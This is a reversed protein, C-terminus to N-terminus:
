NPHSMANLYNSIEQLSLVYQVAELAIAERPMGFILSSEQDQAITVAGKQKMLLLEKAGDRGMGTLIVGLAKSGYNVAMSKFLHGISPRLGGEPPANSLILMADPGAELHVDEPAVYIWGPKAIEQHEALKVTLASDKQLWDVLGKTYGAAIHQVLLIPAPFDSRLQSIIFQLAKPGGLSAGIAVAQTCTSPTIKEKQGIRKLLSAQPKLFLKPQFNIQAANKIAQLLADAMRQYDPDRPGVPKELIDLAGATIAKFSKDIDDKQYNASVIIIPIPFSKMILHTTEFGDMGPLVIDMTIVDPPTKKIFELADEGTKVTGIVQLQQDSQIIYSLLKAAIPSDEVILVKILTPVM